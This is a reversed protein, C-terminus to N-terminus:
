TPAMEVDPTDGITRMAADSCQITFRASSQPAWAIMTGIHSVFTLCQDEYYAHQIQYGGADKKEVKM